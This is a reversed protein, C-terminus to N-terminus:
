SSDNQCSVLSHHVSPHVSDIVALVANQM